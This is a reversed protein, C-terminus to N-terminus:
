FKIDYFVFNNDNDIYGVEKDKIIINLEYADCPDNANSPTDIEQDCGSLVCLTVITLALRKLLRARKM